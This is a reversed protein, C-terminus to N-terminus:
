PNWISAHEIKQKEKLEETVDFITGMYREKEIIYNIRLWRDGDSREYLFLREGDSSSIRKLEDLRKTIMESDVCNKQKPDYPWDLLSFVNSSCFATPNGKQYIFVGMPVDTMQIIESFTSSSDAVASSLNEIASSLEDFEYINTKRLAIVKNPDSQKLDKVLAILPKTALNSVIVIGLIGLLFSIITALFFEMKMQKPFAFLDKQQVISMLAWKQNEFPTGSNYLELPQVSAYLVKDSNNKSQLKFINEYQKKGIKIHSADGFYEKYCPGSNVSPYIKTREYNMIGLVYVGQNNSNIEEYNLMSTIYSENIDVGLVGFVNGMKDMLPISYTIVKEGKGSFSFSDSWYGYNASINDNGNKVIENYISRPVNSFKESSNGNKAAMLPEVFFRENMANKGSFVFTNNWDFGLSINMKYSVSSPGRELLLDSNSISYNSPNSSRVYFGARTSLTKDNQIGAGDLVVFAGTVANKRLLYVIEPAVRDIIKENLAADEKIDGLAAGNESLVDSTKALIRSETEKLNSWRHLMENQLYLKQNITHGNLIDLANNNIHTLINGNLFVMAYLATQLILIVVVSIILRKRITKKRKVCM